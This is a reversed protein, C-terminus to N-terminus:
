KLQNIRKELAEKELQIQELREQLFKKQEDVPLTTCVGRRMGTGFRGAGLGQGFCRGQGRGRITGAPGTGDFNPM